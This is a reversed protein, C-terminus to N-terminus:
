FPAAESVSEESEFDTDAYGVDSSAFSDGDRCFQIANLSAAVFKGYNNTFAYINISANVYCGPYVKDDEETLASKDLDLVLPRRKTTAKVAWMDQYGDYEKSDGDMICLKAKAWDKGLVESGVSKIAEQVQKAQPDDKPILFTAGYKELDAGNYKITEWLNPFSLRVNKLVIKM